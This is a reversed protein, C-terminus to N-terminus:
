YINTAESNKGDPFSELTRSDRARGGLLDSFCGLPNMKHGNKWKERSFGSVISGVKENPKKQGPQMKNLTVENMLM